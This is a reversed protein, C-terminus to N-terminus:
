QSDGDLKDVKTVIKDNLLNVLIEPDIFDEDFPVGKEILRPYSRGDITRYLTITRNSIYKSM